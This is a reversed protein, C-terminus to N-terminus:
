KKIIKFGLKHLKDILLVVLSTKPTKDLWSYFALQDDEACNYFAQMLINYEEADEGGYLNIKKTNLMKKNDPRSSITM